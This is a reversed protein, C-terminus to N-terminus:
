RGKGFSMNNCESRDSTFTATVFATFLTSLRAESAYLTPKSSRNTPLQSVGIKPHTGPKTAAGCTESSPMNNWRGFQPTQNSCKLTCIPAYPGIYHLMKWRLEISSSSVEKQASIEARTKLHAGPPRPRRPDKTLAQDLAILRAFSAWVKDLICTRPWHKRTV